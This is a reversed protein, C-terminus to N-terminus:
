SQTQSTKFFHDMTKQKKESEKIGPALQGNLLRAYSKLCEVVFSSRPFCQNQMSRSRCLSSLRDANEELQGLACCLADKARSPRSDNGLSAITPELLQRVTDTQQFLDSVGISIAIVCCQTFALCKAPDNDPFCSSLKEMTVGVMSIAMWCIKARSDLPVDWEALKKSMAQALWDNEGERANSQVAENRFLDFACLVACHMLELQLDNCSRTTDNSALCQVTRAVALWARKDGKVDTGENGGGLQTSWMQYIKFSLNRIWTQYSEQFAVTERVTELLHSIIRQVSQHGDDSSSFLLNYRLSSHAVM